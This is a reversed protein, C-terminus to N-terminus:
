DRKKGEKKKTGMTRFKTRYLYKIIHTKPINVAILNSGLIEHLSGLGGIM